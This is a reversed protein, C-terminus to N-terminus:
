ATVTETRPESRFGPLIAGLQRLTADVDGDLAVRELESVKAALDTSDVVAAPRIRVIKDIGSPERQEDPAILEEFLKEGVRLGTFVIKIEEDPVFGSLRVLNRAMDLVKVPEGMDLVYVAGASAGALAAAHLVLHVAEPIVMFYRTVEPHTVTVPGGNKIQEILRPVVSGNSALVNGFRVAVFSTRAPVTTQILMEAVRKTAGMVSSPNVAKDTSILVFREAGAAAATEMALRTGIVNNKVAECPNFEMLPVHKHAAAHFVIDPRAGRMVSDLRRRDTVDGVVPHVSLQASFAALDNTIAYLSNEYREFLTLEVPALRAIQRCLESGISGGAGTVLVRKGRILQELASSDLGVTARALLDEIKLSRIQSVEVRGGVIDRLNPLTKIPIKYPELTRVLDRVVASSASPVAVLVEHPAHSKIIAPLDARSGLVPVGHIRIGAKAPDDDVFGVPEYDYRVDNKMERVVLAGADGAGFVLVRRDRSRRFLESYIRRGLRAGVMALVLLLSDIILISRPYGSGVFFTNVILAFTGSSVVVGSIINRLDWISTYRWLGEYLGFPLFILGRIPVLWPATAWWLAAYNPPIDGDFRLAFGAYNTLPILTLHFIVVLARRHRLLSPPLPNM